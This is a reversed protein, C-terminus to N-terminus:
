SLPLQQDSAAVFTNYEPHDFLHLAWMQRNWPSFHSRALLFHIPSLKRSEHDRNFEEIALREGTHDGYLAMEDGIVDDFYCFVRPLFQNAPADFLRLGDVTSSYFDFDHSVAGIPAPDHTDMFRDITERINGLILTSRTLSRRLLAEDMKFFGPRWQYPLDRYDQPPPLGEGTDFGYIEIKIPILKEVQAAHYELAKLGRGGAVGFEIISVSKKELSHALKAAQFVLYAYNQRRLAGIKFRFDYSGLNLNRFIAKVGRRVPFPDNFIWDVLDPM